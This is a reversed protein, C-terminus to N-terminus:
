RENLFFFNGFKDELTARKDKGIQVLIKGKKIELLYCPALHKDRITHAFKYFLSTKVNHINLATCRTYKLKELKWNQNKIM